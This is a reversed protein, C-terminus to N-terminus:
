RFAAHITRLLIRKLLPRYTLCASSAMHEVTLPLNQSM